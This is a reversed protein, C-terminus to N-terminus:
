ASEEKLRDPMTKRMMNQLPRFEKRIYDWKGPYKDLMLRIADKNKQLADTIAPATVPPEMHQAVSSSLLTLNKSKLIMAAKELKDLVQIARSHRSDIKRASQETQEGIHYSDYDLCYAPIKCTQGDTALLLNEAFLIANELMVPLHRLNGKFERIKEIADETLLYTKGYTASLDQLHQMALNVLSDSHGTRFQLLQEKLTENERIISRLGNNLKQLLAKNARSIILFSKFQHYLLHGIIVKQDTSLMKDVRNLGFNGLNRNFHVILCDYLKDDINQFRLVLIVHDLESFINAISPPQGVSEFPLEEKKIWTFNQSSQRFKQIILRQDQSRILDDEATIMEQDRSRSLLRIREHQQAYYIGTIKEIGPLFLDSYVFINEFEDGIFSFLGPKM